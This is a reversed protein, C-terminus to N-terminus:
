DPQAQTDIYERWYIIKGDELEIIIADEAYSTEGTERKKDRWTWEVAAENGNAILRQIMIQTDTFEAFYEEAAEKIEQKGRFTSGSVVFASAEAFDAIIGESDAAEWASAQREVLQQFQSASPQSDMTAPNESLQINDLPLNAAMGQSSIGGSLCLAIVIAALAFGRRFRNSIKQIKAM